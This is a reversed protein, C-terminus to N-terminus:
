RAEKLPSTLEGAFRGLLRVLAQRERPSWESVAEDLLRRRAASLAAVAAAGRPTVQATRVRGDTECPSRVILEAAELKTLQRSMTSHDRGLEGALEVVGAPGWTGLRVLVPLFAPDLDLEAEAMMRWDRRPDTVFRVIDLFATALSDELGHM